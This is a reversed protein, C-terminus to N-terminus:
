TSLPSSNLEDDADSLVRHASPNVQEDRFVNFFRVAYNRGRPRGLRDRNERLLHRAYCICACSFVVFSFLFISAWYSFTSASHAYQRSKQIQRLQGIEGDLNDLPIPNGNVKLLDTYLTDNSFLLVKEKEMPSLSLNFPVIASFNVTAIVSREFSLMTPLLAVDSSARCKQPLNITGVGLGVILTSTGSPCVVTLAFPNSTAYLWNSPTRHLVPRALRPAAHKQCSTAVGLKTYMAYECSPAGSRYLARPENCFYLSNFKRCSTLDVDNLTTYLQHDSSIAFYPSMKGFSLTVNENIPYPLSTVRFLDMQAYPDPLLPLMVLFLFDEKNLPIVQCFQYYYPVYTASDPWLTRINMQNLERVVSSLQEAPFIDASLSGKLMTELGRAFRNIDYTLDSIASGAYSIASVMNVVNTLTFLAAEGQVLSEQLSRINGGLTEIATKVKQQNVELKTIHIATVNLIQGHLNLQNREQESLDKLSEIINMADDFTASDVVGFLYHLGSGVFDFASRQLRKRPSDSTPIGFSGLSQLRDKLNSIRQHLDLLLLKTHARLSEPFHELSSSHSKRSSNGGGMLGDLAEYHQSVATLSEELPSVRDMLSEINLSLPVIYHSGSLILSGVPTFTIPHNQELVAQDLSVGLSLSTLLVCAGLVVVHSIMIGSQSKPLDM